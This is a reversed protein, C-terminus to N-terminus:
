LTINLGLAMIVYIACLAGIHILYPDRSLILPYAALLLILLAITSARSARFTEELRARISPIRQYLIGLAIMAVIFALLLSLREIVLGFMLLAFLALMTGAAIVAQVAKRRGPAPEATFQTHIFDSEPM